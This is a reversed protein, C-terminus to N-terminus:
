NLDNLLKYLKKEFKIECGSEVGEDILNIIKELREYKNKLNLIFKRELLLKENDNQLEFIMLSADKKKVEQLSARDKLFADKCMIYKQLLNREQNMLIDVGILYHIVTGHNKNLFSSISSYTYGRDYLIKSFVRRADVINRARSKIGIDEGFINDVIEKLEIFEIKNM